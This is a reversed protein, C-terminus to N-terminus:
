RGDRLVPEELGSSALEYKGQIGSGPRHRVRYYRGFLSALREAEARDSEIRNRQETPDDALHYLEDPQGAPREIYSWEKTRICRDIGEHYGTIVAERHTDADGELVHRFSQGHMAGLNSDLSLLDLLTPLVDQFQVLADTRRGAGRVRPLRIMFPIRLMESYLRDAGKLFKGHDNLPHGHDALVVVISDELYELDDLAAFFPGLCADVFTVEGAYLARIHRVQEQTAWRESLGGMPLILRPGSYGVEGYTDFRPPPDWPEHPDFCDIWLFIKDHVRNKRLWEVAQAMVQSPFWDEEKAFADTNALFQAVRRRWDETYAANVYAELPRRSPASEWADYEQGRIWRYAHFGGHYNMGPARYHYCDSVLGCVYGENRLIQPLTIEGPHLPGWPRHPLARQGTMLVCRAPITPLAEPYANTFVVCSKSFADLQPTQAAPVDPFSPRGRHYAGVHDQRLSDLVLVILNM